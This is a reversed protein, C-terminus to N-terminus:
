KPTEIRGTRCDTTWSMQLRRGAVEIDRLRSPVLSLNGGLLAASARLRRNV